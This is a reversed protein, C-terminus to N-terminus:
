VAVFKNASSVEVFHPDKVPVNNRIRVLFHSHPARDEERGVFQYPSCRIWAKYPFNRLAVAPSTEGSNKSMGKLSGHM